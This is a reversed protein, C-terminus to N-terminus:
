KEHGLVKRSILFRRSQFLEAVFDFLFQHFRAVDDLLSQGVDGVPLHEPMKESGSSM